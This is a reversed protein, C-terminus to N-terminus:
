PCYIQQNNEWNEWSQNTLLLAKTPYPALKCCMTPMLVCFSWEGLVETLLASSFWGWLSLLDRQNSSFFAKPHKQALGCGKGEGLFHPRIDGWVRFNKEKLGMNGVWITQHCLHSFISFCQRKASWPKSHPTFTPHPTVWSTALNWMFMKVFVLGCRGTRWPKQSPKSLLSPKCSSTNLNM